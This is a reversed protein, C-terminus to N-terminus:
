VQDDFQKDEFGIVEDKEHLKDQMKKIEAEFHDLDEEHKM